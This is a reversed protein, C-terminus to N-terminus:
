IGVVIREEFFTVYNLTVENVTGRNEKNYQTVKDLPLSKEVIEEFDRLVARETSGSFLHYHFLIEYYQCNLNYKHQLSAFKSLWGSLMQLCPKLLSDVYLSLSYQLYQLIKLQFFENKIFHIRTLVLVSHVWAQIWSKYQRIYCTAGSFSTVQINQRETAKQQGKREKVTVRPFWGFNEPGFDSM